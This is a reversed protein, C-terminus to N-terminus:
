EWLERMTSVGEYYGYQIEDVDIKLFELITECDDDNSVKWEKMSKKIDKPDVGKGNLFQHWTKGELPPELPLDPNTERASIYAARSTIGQAQCIDIISPKEELRNEVVDLVDDVVIYEQCKKIGRCRANERLNYDKSRLELLISKITNYDSLRIEPLLIHFLPKNEYWRGPRLVMQIIQGTAKKNVLFAVSDAVPIDVGESLKQCNVIIARREATFQRLVERVNDGVTFVKYDDNNFVINDFYAKVENMDAVTSTYIILHNMEGTKWATAIMECKAILERGYPVGNNSMQWIRYDPLVGSNIMDRLNMNVIKRGFVLENDMSLISGICIRPTFTLSLRKIDMEVAYQLLLRSIGRGSLVYDGKANRQLVEGVMHHAEDFVILETNNVRNVLHKSSMTSVVICYKDDNYDRQVGKANIPSYGVDQLAEVWQQIVNEPCCVVLRQIGALASCAMKTKGSGCPAVVIGAKRKDCEIFERIENIAPAQIENLLRIRENNDYIFHPNEIVGDNKIQEMLCDIYDVITKLDLNFWENGPQRYEAFHKHIQGEVFVDDTVEWTKIFEIQDENVRSTNLSTIRSKANCTRGIKYGLRNDIYHQSSAVYIM